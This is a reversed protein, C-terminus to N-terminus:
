IAYQQGSQMQELIGLLYDDGDSIMPQFYDARLGEIKGGIKELKAEAGSKAFAALIPIDEKGVMAEAHADSLEVATSEEDANSLAQQLAWKAIRKGTGSSFMRATAAIQSPTMEESFVQGLQAHFAPLRAALVTGYHATVRETLAAQLSPKAKLLRDVAPDRKMLDHVHEDIYSKIGIMIAPAGVMAEVIVRVDGSKAFAGSRVPSVDAYAISPSLALGVAMAFITLVSRKM